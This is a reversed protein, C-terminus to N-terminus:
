GHLPSESSYANLVAKCAASDVTINFLSDSQCSEVEDHYRRNEALVREVDVEIKM